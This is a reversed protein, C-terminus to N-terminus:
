LMEAMKLPEKCCGSVIQFAPNLFGCMRGCLGVCRVYESAALVKQKQMVEKRRAHLGTAGLCGSQNKRNRVKKQRECFHAAARCGPPVHAPSVPWFASIESFREFLTL